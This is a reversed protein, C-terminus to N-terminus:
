GQTKAPLSEFLKGILKSAQQRRQPTLQEGIAAGGAGGAAGGAAAGLGSDTAEGGAASGMVAGTIGGAIQSIGGGTGATGSSTWLISSDQVSVMKLSMAMEEKYKPVNAVLAADVNLLDALQAAETASSVQFDREKMVAKVQQREVPSYGKGLLRQNILDTLQNKDAESQLKGAVKVVAVRDLTDFDFSQDPAGSVQTKACAGLMLAFIAACMIFTIRNKM